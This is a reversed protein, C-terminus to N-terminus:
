STVQGKLHLFEEYRCRKRHLCPLNFGYYMWDAIEKGKQYAYDLRWVGQQNQYLSGQIGTLREITARVWKIFLGSGSFLVIRLYRRHDFKLIVVSGDGDICGRFFDRFFRDPVALLGLTKSKAPTLGIDELLGRLRPSTITTLYLMKWGNERPSKKVPVSVGLCHQYTDHLERDTSAFVIDNTNQRPLTGDSTILGVAYAFEPTWGWTVDDPIAGAPIPGSSRGELGHAALHRCVTSVACGLREAIERQSLKGKCYLRELLERSIDHELRPQTMGYEVMRRWVTTPDCGLREAIEGRTLGESYYLRELLEQPIDLRRYEGPSRAELGYARMRRWITAESCGLREAVQSVPLGEDYYLRKLLSRPIDLRKTV